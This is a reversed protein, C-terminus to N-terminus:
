ANGEEEDVVLGARAGVQVPMGVRLRPDHPAAVRPEGRVPVFELGPGAVDNTTVGSVGCLNLFTPVSRSSMMQM